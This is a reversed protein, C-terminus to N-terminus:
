DDERHPEHPPRRRVLKRHEGRQLIRGKHDVLLCEVHVVGRDLKRSPRKASIRCQGHVTDSVRIPGVFDITWGLSGMAALDTPVRTELGQLYALGLLGHAIREGYISSRAYEADTHLAHYDGTLASFMVLDAETITRAPTEYSEGVEIDDWYRM